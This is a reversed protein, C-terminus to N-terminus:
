DIDNYEVSYLPEGNEVSLQILVGIANMVDGHQEIDHRYVQKLIGWFKFRANMTEHRTSVLHTMRRHDRRLTKSNPCKVFRPSEGVYGKDAVVREYPDLHHLLCDRFITIDNYKGAPYPGRVWILDGELISLGVEYRLASKGKYKFSAFPNGKGVAGKQLIRFDTGDISM